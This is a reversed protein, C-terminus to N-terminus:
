KKYRKIFKDLDEEVYLGNLIKENIDDYKRNRATKTDVLSGEEVWIDVVKDIKQQINIVVGRNHLASRTPISGM